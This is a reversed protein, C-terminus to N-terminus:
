DGGKLTALLEQRLRLAIALMRVAEIEDAGEGVFISHGEGGDKTSSKTLTVSVRSIAEVHETTM